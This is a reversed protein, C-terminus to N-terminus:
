EAWRLARGLQLIGGLPSPALVCCCGLNLGMRFLGKQPTVAELEVDKSETCVHHWSGRHDLPCRGSWAGCHHAQSHAAHGCLFVSAM